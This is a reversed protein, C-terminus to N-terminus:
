IAMRNLAGNLWIAYANGLRPIYLGYPESPVAALSFPIQFHAEGASGRHFRDWQYPLNVPASASAPLGRPTLEAQTLTLVEAGVQHTPLWLWLALWCCRLCARVMLSDSFVPRGLVSLDFLVPM